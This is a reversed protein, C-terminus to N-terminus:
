GHICRFPLARQSFFITLLHVYKFILYLAITRFQIFFKSNLAECIQVFLICSIQYVPLPTQVGMESAKMALLTKKSSM